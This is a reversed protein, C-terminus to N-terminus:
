DLEDTVRQRREKIGKIATQDETCFFIAEKKHNENAKRWM